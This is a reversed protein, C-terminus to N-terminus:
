KEERMIVESIEKSLDLCAILEVENDHNIHILHMDKVVFGDQELMWKYLGLQLSYKTLHCDELHELGNLMKNHYKSTRTIEKNTKYDFLSVTGDPNFRMLDITGSLLNKTNYIIQETLFECHVVADNEVISGVDYFLGGVNEAALVDLDGNFFKELDDHIGNGRVLSADSKFKWEALVSKQSVNDRKAIALSIDKSNFPKVYWSIVKSVSTFEGSRNYYSHAEADFAIGKAKNLLFTKNM